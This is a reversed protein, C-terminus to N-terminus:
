RRLRCSVSTFYNAKNGTMSEQRYLLRIKVTKVSIRVTGPRRLCLTYGAQVMRWCKGGTGNKDPATVTTQRCFGVKKRQFFCSFPVARTGNGKIGDPKM